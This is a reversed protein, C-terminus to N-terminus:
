LCNVAPLRVCSSILDVVDDFHDGTDYVYCGIYMMLEDTTYGDQLVRHCIWIDHICPAEFYNTSMLDVVLAVELIFSMDVSMYM